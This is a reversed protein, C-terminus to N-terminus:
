LNSITTKIIEEEEDKLAAVAAASEIKIRSWNEIEVMARPLYTIRAGHRDTWVLAQLEYVGSPDLRVESSEVPKGYQAELARVTHHMYVPFGDVEVTLLSGNSSLRAEALAPSLSSGAFVSGYRVAFELESGGEKLQRFSCRSRKLNNPDLRCLELLREAIGPQDLPIGKFSFTPRQPVAETAVTSQDKAATEQLDARSAPVGGQSCSALYLAAGVSCCRMLMSHSGRTRIMKGSRQM